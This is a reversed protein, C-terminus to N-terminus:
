KKSKTAWKKKKKAEIKAENKDAKLEAETCTCVDKPLVSYDGNCNATDWNLGSLMARGVPRPADLPNHMMGHTLRSQCHSNCSKRPNFSFWSYREINSMDLIAAVSGEKHQCEQGTLARCAALPM